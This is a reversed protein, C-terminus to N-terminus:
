RLLGSVRSNAAELLGGPAAAAVRMEALFREAQVGGM